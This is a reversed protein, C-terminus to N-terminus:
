VETISRYMWNLYEQDIRMQAPVLNEYRNKKTELFSEVQKMRPLTGLDFWWGNHEYYCLTGREVLPIFGSTVLHSNGLPLLEFIESSIMAQGTYAFNDIIGSNALGSFDVIRDEKVAASKKGAKSLALTSYNQNSKYAELLDMFNMNSIIDANCLLFGDKLEAQCNAIGGGTGLLEKEYSFHIDFGFNSHHHFFDTIKDGLHWLNIVIKDIGAKSLEFLTYWILPKGCCPLLPKPLYRTLPLLRNGKGAALIFAKM